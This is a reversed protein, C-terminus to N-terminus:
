TLSNFGRSTFSRHSVCWYRINVHDCNECEYKKEISLKCCSKVYLNTHADDPSLVIIAHNCKENDCPFEKQM